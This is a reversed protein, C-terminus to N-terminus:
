DLSAAEIKKLAFNSFYHVLEKEDEASLCELQVAYTRHIIETLIFGPLAGEEWIGSVSEMFPNPQTEADESEQSNIYGGIMTMWAFVEEDISPSDDDSGGFHLRFDPEYRWVAKALYYAIWFPDTAKVYIRDGKKRISGYASAPLSLDTYHIGSEACVQLATKWEKDEPHYIRTINMCAEPLVEKVSTELATLASNESICANRKNRFLNKLRKGEEKHFKEVEDPTPKEGIEYAFKSQDAAEMVIGPLDRIGISGDQDDEATHMQEALQESFGSNEAWTRYANAREENNRLWDEAQQGLKQRNAYWVYEDMYGAEQAAAAFDYIPHSLSPDNEKQNKWSSLVTNLIDLEEEFSPFYGKADPFTKQHKENRWLARASKEIIETVGAAMAIPDNAASLNINIETSNLEKLRQEVAPLRSDNKGVRVFEELYREEEYTEGKRDAIIALFFFPSPHEPVIENTLKFESIAQDLNNERFYTIGLNLHAMYSDPKLEIIQKYTEIARDPLGMDDLIGAKMIYSMENKPELVISRIINELAKQKDQLADYSYGIEYYATGSLPNKELAKRYLEIAKEFEGKDHKEIGKLILNECEANDEESIAGTNDIISEMESIIQEELEAISLNGAFIFSLSFITAGLLTSVKMWSKM